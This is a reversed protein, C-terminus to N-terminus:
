PHYCGSWLVPYPRSKDLDVHVHRPYVGVRPFVDVAWRVVQLRQWGGSVAIDAALGTYHSSNADSRKGSTIELEFGVVKELEELKWKLFSSLGEIDGKM